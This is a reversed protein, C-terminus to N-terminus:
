RQFGSCEFRCHVEADRAATLALTLCVERNTRASSDDESSMLLVCAYSFFTCGDQYCGFMLTSYGEYELGLFALGRYTSM